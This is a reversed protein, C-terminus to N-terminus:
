VKKEQTAYARATELAEETTMSEWRNVVPVHVVKLHANHMQVSCRLCTHEKAKKIWPFGDPFFGAIYLECEELPLKKEVLNWIGWEEAHGCAGLMSETRSAISHRICKPECLSRLGPITKNAGQYVVAGNHMIVCGFKMKQCPSDLAASFCAQYIPDDFLPNGGSRIKALRLALLKYRKVTEPYQATLVKERVRLEGVLLPRRGFFQPETFDIESGDPLRNWYHSRMHAFEPFPELSARFMSGGFVDQALLAVVACHGYLPNETTWGKSDASTERDCIQPLLTRFLDPTMKEIAM